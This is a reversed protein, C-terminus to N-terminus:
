LSPAKTSRLSAHAWLHNRHRDPAARRAGPHHHNTAARASHGAQRRTPDRRRNRTRRRALQPKFKTKKNKTNQIIIGSHVKTVFEIDCKNLKYYGYLKECLFYSATIKNINKTTMDANIVTTNITEATDQIPEVKKLYKM